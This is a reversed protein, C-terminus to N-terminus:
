TVDNKKKLITNIAFGHWKKGRRPQGEAALQLAIKDFATGSSRLEKMRELVEAEGALTGYPKAGECRGTRAKQRLRAGRLKIVIM